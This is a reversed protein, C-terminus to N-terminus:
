PAVLPLTVTLCAGESTNAAAIAGGIDRLIMSSIYLGLGTGSDPAKTTFYPDFMADLAEPLIGGGNDSVSVVAVDSLREVAVSILGAFTGSQQQLGMIADRANVILNVFVQELLVYNAQVIVSDACISRSLAIRDISLQPLTLETVSGILFKVDIPQSQRNKHNGFSSMQNVIKNAREVQNLMKNIKLILDDNSIKGKQLQQLSNHAIINMTNLPQKVEHTIGASLAILSSNKQFEILDDRLKRESGIDLVIGIVDTNQTTQNFAADCTDRVWMYQGAKHRFRYEIAVPHGSRQDFRSRRYLEMDDPHISGEWWEPQEVDEESYGFLALASESVFSVQSRGNPLIDMGYFVIPSMATVKILRRLDESLLNDDASASKEGRRIISKRAANAAVGILAAASQEGVAGAKPVGSEHPQAVSRARFLGWVTAIVLGIVVVFIVSEGM